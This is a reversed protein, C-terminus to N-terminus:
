EYLLTFGSYVTKWMLMLNENFQLFLNISICKHYNFRVNSLYNLTKSSELSLQRSWQEMTELKTVFHVIDLMDSFKLDRHSPSLLAANGAGTRRQCPRTRGSTRWSRSPWRRRGTCTCRPPSTCPSSPGWSTASSNLYKM